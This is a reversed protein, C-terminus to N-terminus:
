ATAYIAVFTLEFLLSVTGAAMRVLSSRKPAFAVIKVATGGFLFQWVAALAAFKRTPLENIRV